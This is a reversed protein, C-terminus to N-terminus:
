TKGRLQRLDLYLEEIILPDIDAHGNKARYYENNVRYYEGTLESLERESLLTDAGERELKYINKRLNMIKDDLRNREEGLRHFMLISLKEDIELRKKILSKEEDSYNM